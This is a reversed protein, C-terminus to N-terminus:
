FSLALMRLEWYRIKHEVRCPDPTKIMTTIPTDNHNMILANGGVIKVPAALPDRALPAVGLPGWSSKAKNSGIRFYSQPPSAVIM